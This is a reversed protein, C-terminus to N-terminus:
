KFIHIADLRNRRAVMINARQDSSVFPVLKLVM